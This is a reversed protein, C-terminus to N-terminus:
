SAEQVGSEAGPRHRDLHGLTISRGPDLLAVPLTATGSEREVVIRAGGVPRRGDNTVVVRDAFV